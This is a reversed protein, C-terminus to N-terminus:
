KDIDLMNNTLMYDIVQNATTGSGGTLSDFTHNMLVIEQTVPATSSEKVQLHVGENDQFVSLLSKLDTTSHSGDHDLLDSLDLKDGELRNITGSGKNFDMIYDKTLSGSVTDGKNWVFTDAGEGGILIDNGLGGILYDNGAGGDLVDSGSGGRLADKGDGGYLHDNGSGGFIVDSGNQGYIRDDGGGGHAIDLYANSNATIKLDSNENNPDQLLLSDAGRSFNDVALEAADQKQQANSDFGSVHSDGLYIIDNGKGLYVKDGGVGVDVVIGNEVHQLTKDIPTGTGSTSWQVKQNSATPDYMQVSDIMDGTSKIDYGVVFTLTSASTDGDLDKLTYGFDLKVSPSVAAGFFQYSGNDLDVILSHKNDIYITLTKTAADFSHSLASSSGATTVTSGDFNYTVGRITLQGVFGGDAGVGHGEVGSLLNGGIPQVVSQLLIPPLKTVDPVIVANGDVNLYGDFAVKDLEGAPVSNGMGYALATVKNNQLHKTWAALESAEITNPNSGDSGEPVGDSLFYSVNSAGTLPRANSNGSWFSEAWKIADDYDTGGNATLGNIWGKAQEVTMWYIPSGSTGQNVIRAESSFLVLQVRTQGQALYQDLLQNASEKMVELRTKGNGAAFGMSGSVDLVLQVNAGVKTESEVAHFIPSAVPVDDRVALDFSGTATEAGSKSVEYNVTFRLEDQSTLVTSQGDVTHSLPKLLTFTYSPPNASNDVTVTFAVNAPNNGFYGKLGAGDQVVNVPQGDIGTVGSLGTIGVLKLQVGSVNGGSGDTVQLSQTVSLPGSAPMGVPEPLHANGGSLGDEDVLGNGLRVSLDNDVITGTGSTDGVTVQLTENTEVLRDNVTPVTVTFSTVGAPVSVSKGDASLTVGHSFTPRGWDANTAANAGTGAISFSYQTVVNTAGSLTVVHQLSTGELESDSAINVVTPRALPNVAFSGQSSDGDRDYAKFTFDIDGDDPRQMEAYQFFEWKGTAPTFELKFVLKNSEDHGLLTNSGSNSISIRSGMATLLGREFDTAKIDLAMHGKGDAGWQPALTGSGYAIAQPTSSGLFEISKVTFDSNDSTNTNGNNTAKIVMTDFGGQLVQFNQNYEGGAADSSFTLTSILVGGRYFEVVGSEKEGGFMQSFKINAGYAVTGPDLKVILEESASKGNGFLRFDVENALNHYPSNSSAVGLGATSANVDAAILTPDTASKFGQATIKFGELDLERQNATASYRTLDFLGTLVNPIDTKAVSVVEANEAIPADDEVTVGLKGTTTAIGDSVKVELDFSLSDEQDKLPHDLPGKLTLDYHWDGKGSADPATLKVEVVAKYGDSGPTGTYGVLTKSDVDWIWEVKVGGSYVPQAGDDTPWGLSVTLKDSDVDGVSIKGSAAVEDTTDSSGATDAIGNALGEESVVAPKNIVVTPPADNDIITATGTAGTVGNTTVGNTETVRLQFTEPGEYVSDQTTAVTVTLGTVGAPVTVNGNTDVALTQTAGKSDVYSVTMGTVDAAEATGYVLGLNIVLPADTANSLSVNFVANSGENVNGADSVALAPKDNDPDPGPGTGDDKITANGTVGTAGNTTVGNTETVRLQFTEPGEYVGDQTTVVTVTLGTVGAPVTVNGNTDVALTQTAGKSDVYSVTMGTVDAAEATGYVLGLNIVLPADTANSLSVNFVANSGENVNGADSVALAPKDNDPDPGPGTGDDKITANGTVGTAGNTTVGNTETVRLQFTEPGEYVGDQTTVVTVTLGTVGAPVTVNGNADVALTQTAGKSDVYSVTMGTVDAAEATGYVLGLNIVLPADTANSLSVNFVANSGENVNGADSVALAPKDNDPDPGPGTGDDKITANGTVGTAGNTTVGNTETVRLQFTEPGEYVSDQTTAVTVTLGTVGAPVTVNGNTDVALTQTAGKSDVYSVTMGTVDAAEATGYVLGLNIVLPADTANSLSVNFVANSGENVNGADSVALAPKDNDPDPGPGTGDDKITANGTVGTAGNTTVGNTETVRLQFTEPGEYVSDQTTAVTVTLGTVGAPVTVNGNTDVALTQTAGKSDVYSVTMGTVDAAEATGYVLGLNIVLPADTANSLSVNFVANSGENVNGADSVALAPKDNDPDPGPGTGDDKITANGTVGTAGNTTVGNTETVRLQFTEPGEYVGDQTTVVTVTLGTVGAPVTVNGNTDVALTQTAGKSDVYSVTMGTVDAAEATGYVLGLNIVLPADTANSLSVNFVANSGENVNGADSVALAPKDNDPDPGPGTGDDKITANGTVGTAGNTTVGNTETVRLQFTEPGEYVSDQTTAVTVTLGTVGAPVTVNGNTDVALTQTAGKSDVYSVTMGTVDAAEATGYVLGLNIVLPADTANSLSVNFVANSGENVNGADSVALAPKDNDPDPGPGTGDDKITANGTVGTAGNTTVGNTETVRLQFTEPGEYVSDQTTAVTVTLGTVGAPVTVNGNTDVALTQTAGKSDVYSVTMGTVDAAEATGYVLGLNIVLPADTANSLSVNFVANSGENVNGADSVALAPKDNDPDPGPGTGDDKITANGTVGTAGNTTVGNTETVRLQFTEPGEYVSDQTTAVTVTLGTVGAPVTVNGNTDVALTQTAGKSDVYSVTMGTVDAAEATGYVLGLNIVLPADTANSLSVNFVANSGENVNGADSVALAPKDNDPDPGPGTGDDKITANGTVGTAGNTTVGNTETVRLQFTEPGEYVGDQTTAVTVTLGTVGAPVTVNGNTDVALTQTAGKSDVYSVTMGTVDAAEATGYVLGLNIVLPADTANSLSVNFVANSGENVNGADSVALAPKDNDPDPGPGTGDDKITANGTVGTAGNTTVGNTETVRLQFTEPGEYVGDQTTVVTVTLGTVGAPVTVNGNADVALTQTAGKSDVYSVTMGTVDAAEATGYVLGLNIVLPADTANSLSVNFVANSGENVNGADSVALTPRDADDTIITKIKADSLDLKEFGLTGAPVQIGSVSVEFIENGEYTSDVLTAISFMATKGDAGIVAQTTETIDAGSATTYTYSLTVISGVPAANSLTVTYTATAEGEVVSGPGRLTVTTVDSDDVVTNSVSGATTVSEYNGGSTGSISVSLTENGQQYADDARVPVPESNASSSGVPITIVVGNSLTVTLPSGTVPNSVSATYVISGGEVVNQGNTASGLTVTTTDISDSIETQAPASNVELKEFNGGTVASITTSVTSANNYVDNAATQYEISGSSQGDAVTIVQGNSLTVSVAGQAPHSLTVTYTIIGGETVSPTATLTATTTDVTDTIQTVAATKDVVLSEFNGGTATTISASVSSADLYVDEDAGVTVEVSGTTAGDLITITKGNDLTVTVDGQAKNTLTATYTIIGGAETLSGTASLSVTTVDVTDTIQTVAATKDVVLSEFNGGTATTISASVSSADLYVDEDAGVTVEVSGTTAGDLITITEGNSLMVKVEGQAKNTLTATYTIIGGAETLSGTASLSVTTVDVTDTIQTVAATKDVVLSEFNGGTATTISASVSSADLYVDEDAGVTVEVSGTTAGDLITITKGNDLTVTVDGQAKNTLTATYTIIGGAETLSGTASLSVTTVDVTDTIQTVAATKDVVLSEFNGGTATTISASVSSADLYVDEDAGVTVEVSGTTEGDKITITEGNSLMVKVEGQAKSTLTATYTIIGGAETLSGTASLSVKTEDVTDAVATVVTSSTDLQEYNGGQSGTISVTLNSGDKYVDDSPADVTVIGSLEGAKITISAGNSLTLVLDSQPANNVNASYTIQGGENVQAPAGLTVSTTDITDNIQTTTSPGTIIQNFGGGQTGTISVTITSPDVYPSDAPTAVTVSGTTQGAPITIVAGNSLTIVLDAGFVPVDVSATFTISGGEKVQPQASLTLNASIFPQDAIGTADLTPATGNNYTTDFGAQSITADGVRDITVFGGNGSAGAVGGIGGGGAAPAGGAASAEFAQTPDAGGLIAQQLANIDDPTGAAGNQALQPADGEEAPENQESAPQVTFSQGGGMFSAGDPSMIVAGKPLVDGEALLKRSGDAAVLYIQGKLQTVTVGQELTVANTIM